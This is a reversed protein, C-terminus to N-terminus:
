DAYIRYVKGEYFKLEINYNAGDYYWRSYLDKITYGKDSGNIRIVLDKDSEDSDIINYSANYSKGKLTIIGNEINAITGSMSDIEASVSKATNDKTKVNANLVEGNAARKYLDYAAATVGDITIGTSNSYSITEGDIKFDSTTVNELTGSLTNYDSDDYVTIKKVENSSTLEVRAITEGSIYVDKLTALDNDSSGGTFKVEVSKRIYYKNSKGSETVITIYDDTLKSIKGYTNDDLSAEIKTVRNKSDMYLKLSLTDGSDILSKLKSLSSEDGDYLVYVKSALNYVEKSGDSFELSVSSDGIKKSSGSVTGGDVPLSAELRAINGDSDLTAVVTLSDYDNLYEALESYKVSEGEYKLVYDDSFDFSKEDSSNRKISAGYKDIDTLTGKVADADGEAAVAQAQGNKVTVTVSLSNGNEVSRLIDRVTSIKGNFTIVAGSSLSYVGKAGSSIDVAITSSSINNIVGKITDGESSSSNDLVSVRLIGNSDYTVSVKNGVAIGMFDTSAGNYSAPTKSTGSFSKIAGSSDTVKITKTNGDIAADTVQGEFTGTAVSSGEGNLVAYTKTTVVAMEARNIYAAPKFNANNDGVLIGLRSLLEVYQVADSSVKNKDTFNLSANEDLKYISSLAKGFIVAVDQRTAKTSKGNKDVYGSVTNMTTIKNELAYATAEYAWTPVKLGSMVTKWRETVADSKVAKKEMLLINYALQMTEFYTVNDNARFLNTGNGNEEGVMLGLEAAKAIYTKAGEWPVDNEDSFKIAALSSSAMAASLVAALILTTRKKM